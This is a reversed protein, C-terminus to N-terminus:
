LMDKRIGNTILKFLSNSMTKADGIGFVLKLMVAGRICAFIMAATEKVDAPKFVGEKVGATLIDKIIKHQSKFFDKKRPQIFPLKHERIFLSLLQRKKFAYNLNLAFYSKLANLPDKVTLEKVREYFDKTQEKILELCLEDKGKFRLYLAGVSLGAKRAIESMKTETYGKSSFLDLAVKLIKLKPVNKRM